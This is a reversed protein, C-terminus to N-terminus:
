TGSRGFTELRKYAHRLEERSAGWSLRGLVREYGIKGRRAREDDDALLGAILQAFEGVDNPTAYVAAEDASYRAEILDFSVIPKECAMYELIKNMTSIDNLPNSPDPALCVDATTICELLEADSIRGTFTVQSTLGLHDRLAEADTRADGDGVFVAQWDTVRLDDRLGALARIAYDVGDQPGMVGVYALLHRKGQRLEPNAVGGRFRELDPGSRVVFVDNATKGGRTLAMRRYSENTAIVVDAVRYTARELALLARYVRDKGRGFRSLYLEPVLDHQDFVVRAGRLKLPLALLFLLDPPNCLHVYDFRGLRAIRTASHFMAALYERTYGLFGATAAELPYRLIDIGDIQARPETDQKTGRPCVVTVEYGFDRLAQAEQWVRRDFPVSLNEVLILARGPL